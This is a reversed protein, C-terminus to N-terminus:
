CPFNGVGSESCGHFLVDWKRGSLLGASSVIRLV